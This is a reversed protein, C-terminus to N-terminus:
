ESAALNFLTKWNQNIELKSADLAAFDNPDVDKEHLLPQDAPLFPVSARFITKGEYSSSIVVSKEGTVPNTEVLRKQGDDAIEYQQNPKLDISFRVSVDYQYVKKKFNTSFYPFCYQLSALLNAQELQGIFTKHFRNEAQEM